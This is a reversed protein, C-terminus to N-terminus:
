PASSICLRIFQTVQKKPRSKGLGQKEDNTTSAQQLTREANQATGQDAPITLPARRREALGCLRATLKTLGGLIGTGHVRAAAEGGRM